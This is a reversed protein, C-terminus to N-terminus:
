AYYQLRRFKIYLPPSSLGPLLRFGLNEKRRTAFLFFSLLFLFLPFLVMDRASFFKLISIAEVSLSELTKHGKLVCHQFAESQITNNSREPLQAPASSHPKPSNFTRLSHKIGCSGTVVMWLSFFLLLLSKM